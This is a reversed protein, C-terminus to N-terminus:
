RAEGNSLAISRAPRSLQGSRWRLLAAGAACLAFGVGLYALDWAAVNAVDPRVHRLALIHHDGLGVLLQFLGGGVLIWGAIERRSRRRLEAPLRFLLDLGLLLMALTAVFFLSTAQHAEDGPETLPHWGLGQQLLLGDLAAGALGLGVFLGACPPAAARLQQVLQASPAWPRARPPREDAASSFVSSMRLEGPM